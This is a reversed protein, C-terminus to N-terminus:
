FIMIDAVIWVQTCYNRFSLKFVAMKAYPIALWIYENFETEINM